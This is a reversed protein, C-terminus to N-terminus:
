SILKKKCLTKSHLKPQGSVRCGREEAEQLRSDCSLEELKSPLCEVKNAVNWDKRKDKIIKLYPKMNKGLAEQFLSAEL